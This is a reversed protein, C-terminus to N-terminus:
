TSSGAQIPTFLLPGRQPGAGTTVMWRRSAANEVPGADQSALVSIGAAHLVKASSGHVHVHARPWERERLWEQFVALLSPDMDEMGGDGPSVEITPIFEFAYRAALMQFLPENYNVTVLGRPTLIHTTTSIGSVEYAKAVTSQVEERLPFGPMWQFEFPMLSLTAQTAWLSAGGEADWVFLGLDGAFEDSLLTPTKWLPRDNLFALVGQGRKVLKLRYPVGRELGMPLSKLTEHLGEKNKQQFFVKEAQGGWRWEGTTQGLQRVGMEGKELVFDFELAWSEGWTGGPIWVQPIEEDMLHVWSVSEAGPGGSHTGRRVWEPNALGAAQDGDAEFWSALQPRSSPGVITPTRLAQELNAVLVEATWDPHVRLRRLQLPDSHRDNVGIFSDVFSVHFFQNLGQRFPSATNTQERHHYVPSFAKVRYSPLNHSLVQANEFFDRKVRNVYEESTELRGVQELWQSQYLFRGEDGDASVRIPERSHHGGSAVSWIGSEVMRSLRDWYLFNTNKQLVTDTIVSVTAPWKMKRLIPDVVTYTELYGNGFILLLSKEPLAQNADYFGLLDELSIPIFGERKLAHFQAELEAPHIFHENEDASVRDYYLVSIRPNPIGSESAHLEVLEPQMWFYVLPVIVLIALLLSLWAWQDEKFAISRFAPHQSKM